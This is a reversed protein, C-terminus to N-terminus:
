VQKDAAAKQAIALNNETAEVSPHNPLFFKKYIVLAKSYYDIAKDYEGKRSSALGLNNYSIAIDPHEDGVFKKDIELAQEYYGIAKEYEGKDHSAVGLNNYRMAISPHDESYFQKDIALAKEYYEIAMDHEDKNNYALGLNNYNRAIEPHVEGYLKKNIALAQEYYGIALDYKGKSYYALGLNNYNVAFEPHARDHLKENIALSQDYYGIAKDYEGKSYYTLGLNNYNKAIELNENGYLKKNIALAHDYNTISKDYEGKRYYAIGLYTYLASLNEDENKDSNELVQRAREYYMLAKDYYGLTNEMYGAELLSDIYIPNIKTALAFNELAEKYQLKLKYVKGIEYFTTATDSIYDKASQQLLEIAEDYRSGQIAIMADQKLQNTNSQSQLQLELKEKERAHQQQIEESQLLRNVLDQKEKELKELQSKVDNNVLEGEGQKFLLLEAEKKALERQLTIVSDSLQKLEHPKILAFNQTLHLNVHHSFLNEFESLEQYSIFLVKKSEIHKRKFALLTAYDNLAVEDETSFGKKFFAFIKCQLKLALEFEEQLHEGIKSHFIFVCIQSQALYENIADQITEVEPYSGHPLNHEWQWAKINLHQHLADMKHLLLISKEREEPVDSSSAIFVYIKQESM